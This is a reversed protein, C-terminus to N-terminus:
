ISQYDKLTNCNFLMTLDSLPIPQVAQSSLWQQFSRGGNEIFPTLSELCSYRYFGCLPEWGKSSEPLFAIISAPLSDLRSIWQQLQEIELKPLDCALLLVWDTKVKALGQAFGVLPGHSQNEPTFAIEQILQCNEPIIDQYREPWFTVVFVSDTCAQAIECTRKLFSIGEVPLLAKDQGMRSSKGGALIIATLQFTRGSKKM